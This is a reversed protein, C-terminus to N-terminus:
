LILNKTIRTEMTVRVPGMVIYIKGGITSILLGRSRGFLKAGEMGEFIRRDSIHM